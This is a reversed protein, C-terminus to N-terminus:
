GWALKCSNYANSLRSKKKRTSNRSKGLWCIWSKVSSSKSSSPTPTHQHNLCCRCLSNNFFAWLKLPRNKSVRWIFKNRKKPIQILPLWLRSKNLSKICELHPENSVLIFIKLFSRQFSLMKIEMWERPFILFNLCLWRILSPQITFIVKCCWLWILYVSFQM